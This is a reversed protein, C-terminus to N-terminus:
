ACRGGECVKASRAKEGEHAADFCSPENCVEFKALSFDVGPNLVISARSINYGSPFGSACGEVTATFSDSYWQGVRNPCGGQNCRKCQYCHVEKSRLARQAEDSGDDPPLALGCRIVPSPDSVFSSPDEFFFYTCNDPREPQKLVKFVMRVVVRGNCGVSIVHYAMKYLSSTHPEIFDRPLEFTPEGWWVTGCGLCLDGVTADQEKQDAWGCKLARGAPSACFARAGTTNGSSGGSGCLADRVVCEM